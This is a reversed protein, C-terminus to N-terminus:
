RNFFTNRSDSNAPQHVVSQSALQDGINLKLADAKNIFYVIGELRDTHQDILKVFGVWFTLGFIETCIIREVELVTCYQNANM